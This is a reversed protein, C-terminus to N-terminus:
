LREFAVVLRCRDPVLQKLALTTGDAVAMLSVAEFLVTEFLVAEFLVAVFLLTEFLVTEFSVAEFLVVLTMLPVTAERKRWRWIFMSWYRNIQTSLSALAVFSLRLM